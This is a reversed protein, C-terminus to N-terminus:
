NRREPVVLQLDVHTLVRALPRIRTGAAGRPEQVGVIQLVMERQVAPVPGELARQAVLGEGALIMQLAVPLAM